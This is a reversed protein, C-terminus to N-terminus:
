RTEIRELIKGTDADMISEFGCWNCLVLRGERIQIDTYPCNKVNGPYLSFEEIQWIINEKKDVCFVNRNYIDHPSKGLLIIKKDNFFIEKKVPYPFKNKM